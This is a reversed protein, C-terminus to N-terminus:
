REIISVEYYYENLEVHGYSVYYRCRDRVIEGFRTDIECIRGMIADFKSKAAECAEDLTKYTGLIEVTAMEPEDGYDGYSMKLTYM